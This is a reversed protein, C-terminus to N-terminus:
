VLPVFLFGPHSIIDLEGETDKTIELITEDVPIIMKGGPKLQEVLEEPLQTASASVLIRDYPAYKPLGFTKGAPFFQANKIGARQCNQQGFEMLEAIKEVAYVRGKSGVIRSLLAATWGSGSGVDLVRNGPEAELWELMLRVTYPQSNTQGFGIPLPRDQDARDKLDEPVFDARNVGRFAKEVFDM